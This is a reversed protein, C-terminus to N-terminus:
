IYSGLVNTRSVPPQHSLASHRRQHNYHWVWGDLARTREQSSGYTAGYARWNLLTRIFREAKRKDAAPLAPHPPPPHRASPSRGRAHARPLRPGNDTLIREVEVGQPRYFAVARRLFGIASSGKEDALVEAYALRSYDDVAVHVFEYGVTNRKRGAADPFTANYHEKRDRVRWGAGGEIRGLKKVDIHVLEGPRLREYSVPLELGLRGLKGM